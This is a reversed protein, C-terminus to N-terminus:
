YCYNLYLNTKSLVLNKYELTVVNESQKTLFLFYGFFAVFAWPRVTIENLHNQDM